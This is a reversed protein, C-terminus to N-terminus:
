PTVKAQVAAARNRTRKTLRREHRRKVQRELRHLAGDIAARLTPAEAHGILPPGGAAVLRAEARHNNSEPDIVLTGATIRRDLRELRAFRQLAQNRLSDPLKGRRANITVEM